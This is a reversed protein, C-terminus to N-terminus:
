SEWGCGETARRLRIRVRPNTRDLAWYIHKEKIQRDNVYVKKELLDLVLSEDLDPRRSSMWMVIEVELDGEMLTPLIPCQKEFEKKYSLARASKIFRPKGGIVVLRRSNAKSASQGLIEVEFEWESKKEKM